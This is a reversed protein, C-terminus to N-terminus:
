WHHDYKEIIDPTIDRSHEKDYLYQQYEEYQKNTIKYM